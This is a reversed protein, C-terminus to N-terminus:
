RVGAMMQMGGRERMARETVESNKQVIPLFRPLGIYLETAVSIMRYRAIDTATVIRPYVSCACRILPIEILRWDM